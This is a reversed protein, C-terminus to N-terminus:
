CQECTNRVYRMRNSITFNENNYQVNVKLYDFIKIMPKQKREGKSNM